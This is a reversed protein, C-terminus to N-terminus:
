LSKKLSKSMPLLEFERIYSFDIQCFEGVQHVSSVQIICLHRPESDAEVGPKMGDARSWM